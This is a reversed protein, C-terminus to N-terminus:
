YEASGSLTNNRIFLLTKYTNQWKFNKCHQDKCQAAFWNEIGQQLHYNQTIFQHYDDSLSPHNNNANTAIIFDHYVTDQQFQFLAIPKINIRSGKSLRKDLIICKLNKDSEVILRGMNFFTPIGLHDFLPYNEGASLFVAAKYNSSGEERVKESGKNCSCLLIIILLIFTGCKPM